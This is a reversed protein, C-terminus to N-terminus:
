CGDVADNKLLSTRERSSPGSWSSPRASSNSNSSLSSNLGAIIASVGTVTMIGMVVGLITLAARMKYAILSSLGIKVSEWL